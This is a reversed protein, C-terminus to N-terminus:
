LILVIGINGLFIRNRLIRIIEMDRCVVRDITGLDTLVQIHLLTQYSIHRGINERTRHINRFIVNDIRTRLLVQSRRTHSQGDHTHIGQTM